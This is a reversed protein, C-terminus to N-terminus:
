FIENGVILICHKEESQQSAEELTTKLIMEDDYSLRKLIAMQARNPWGLALLKQAITKSNYRADTLLGLIKKESYQLVADDPIRGHFSALTADHWPLALKAFAVQMSGIGAIVEIQKSDFNKRLGDLLSYYGPDGSVMVVVDNQLLEECIFRYVAELDARIVFQKQTEEAFDKLARSGGVLSKAQQIKKLAIPLIYDRSGVGIGVVFIKNM